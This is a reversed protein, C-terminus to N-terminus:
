LDICSFEPGTPEDYPVPFTDNPIADDGATSKADDTLSPAVARPVTAEGWATTTPENPRMLSDQLGDQIGFSPLDAAVGLDSAVSGWGDQSNYVPLEPLDSVGDRINPVGPVGNREDQTIDGMSGHVSESQAQSLPAEQTTVPVPVAAATPVEQEVPALPTPPALPVAAATPVTGTAAEQRPPRTDTSDRSPEATTLGAGAENWTGPLEGWLAPIDFAEGSLDSLADFASASTKQPPHWHGEPRKPRLSDLYSERRLEDM